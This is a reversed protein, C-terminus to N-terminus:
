YHTQEQLSNTQSKVSRRNQTSIKQLNPIEKNINSNNQSDKERITGKYLKDRLRMFTKMGKTVWPKLELGTVKRIGQKM